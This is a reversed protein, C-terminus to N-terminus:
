VEDYRHSTRGALPRQPTGTALDAFGIENNQSAGNGPPAEVNRETKM